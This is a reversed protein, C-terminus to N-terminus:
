VAPREVVADTDSPGGVDGNSLREAIQTLSAALAWLTRRQEPNETVMALARTESAMCRIRQADDVVSMAGEVASSELSGCYRSFSRSFAGIRARFPM